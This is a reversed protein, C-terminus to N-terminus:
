FGDRDRDTGGSLGTRGTREDEIEVETKRVTDQIRQHHVESEQRLGIEEVVRADKSVVPQEAHERAELVQDRMGIDDSSVARDVPRREVYVRTARLDVEAEVPMERVYSRVRVRGMDVDRKGVNMREEIVKLTGDENYDEDRYGM